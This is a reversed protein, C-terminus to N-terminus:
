RVMVPTKTGPKGGGSDTKVVDVADTTAPATAAADDAAMRSGILGGSGTKLGKGKIVEGILGAEQEALSPRVAQAVQAKTPDPAKKDFTETWEGPKDQFSNIDYEITYRTPTRSTGGEGDNQDVGEQQDLVRVKSADLQRQTSGESNPEASTIYFYDGSKIAGTFTKTEKGTPNQRLMSYGPSDPIGTMGAYGAPATAASLNGSTKDATYFQGTNVGAPDYEGGYVYTNGAPDKMVSANYQDVGKNFTGVKRQYAKLARNYADLDRALVSM